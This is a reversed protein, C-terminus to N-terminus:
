WCARVMLLVCVFDERVAGEEVDDAVVGLLRDISHCAPRFVVVHAEVGDLRLM